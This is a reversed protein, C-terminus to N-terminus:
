AAPGNEHAPTRAATVADALLLFGSRIQPRTPTTDAPDPTTAPLFRWGGNGPEAWSWTGTATAPLPTHAAGRIEGALLPGARFGVSMRALATATFEQPIHVTGTPLVDTTAHVPV